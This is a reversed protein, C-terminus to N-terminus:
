PPDLASSRRTARVSLQRGDSVAEVRGNLDTRFVDVRAAKLLKLIDPAPHGYDNGAGVQIVATRPAVAALFPASTSAKSGHHGVKLVDAQLPLGARIMDAEAEREADGTLLLSTPGYDIRLVASNNNDDAGTGSLPRAGPHLVTLMVEGLPIRQGRQAIARPVGSKAVRERWAAALPAADTPATDLIRAVQYRDLVALLGTIHDADPHTLVVLDLSRDWFPMVAGLETLLATPDPGGDILVQRGDPTQVFIADGQGVDLFFVHLRGDPVERLALWAVVALFALVGLLRWGSLWRRLTAFVVV